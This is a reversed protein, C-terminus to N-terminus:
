RMDLSETVRINKVKNDVIDVEIKGHYGNPLTSAIERMTNKILKKIDKSNM